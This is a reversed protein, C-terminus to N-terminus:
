STGRDDGHEAARRAAVATGRVASAAYELAGLALGVPVITQIIWIPVRLAPTVRGAEMSNAVYAFAYASLVALVLCTGFATATALWRRPRGRLADSFASMRIHRAQRAGLGLGAFTVWIMLAENLEETFSLSGGLLNRAAVNVISSLAIGLVGAGVVMREFAVVGRDLACWAAM